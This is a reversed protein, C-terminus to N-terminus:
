VTGLLTMAQGQFSWALLQLKANSEDTAHQYSGPLDFTMVAKQSLCSNLYSCSFTGQQFCADYGANLPMPCGDGQMLSAVNAVDSLVM